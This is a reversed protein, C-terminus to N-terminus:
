RPQIEDICLPIFKEEKIREILVKGLKKEHKDVEAYLLFMWKTM